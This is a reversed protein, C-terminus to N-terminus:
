SMFMPTPPCADPGSSASFRIRRLPATSRMRSSNERTAASNAWVSWNSRSPKSLGMEQILLVAVERAAGGGIADAGALLELAQSIARRRQRLAADTEGM